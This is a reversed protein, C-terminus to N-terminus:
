EIDETHDEEDEEPRELITGRRTAYTRGKTPRHADSASNASSMAADPSGHSNPATSLQTDHLCTQPTSSSSPANATELREIESVSLGRPELRLSERYQEDDSLRHAAEFLRAIGPLASFSYRQTRGSLCTTLIAHVQQRKALNIRGEILDKNGDGVFTLDTLHVGLYPVFPPARRVAALAERYESHAREVSMLQELGSLTSRAKPGMRHMTAKLRHISASGLAALIAMLSNFNALKRLEAGVAIFHSVLLARAVLSQAKIIASSVVRALDNFRQTLQQLPLKNSASADAPTRWMYSLLHAHGVCHYLREDALTLYRAIQLPEAALLQDTSVTDIRVSRALVTQVQNIMSDPLRLHASPQPASSVSVDAYGQRSHAVTSPMSVRRPSASTAGQGVTRPRGAWSPAPLSCRPVRGTRAQQALAPALCLLVQHAESASLSSIPIESVGSLAYSPRQPSAFPQWAGTDAPLQMTAM